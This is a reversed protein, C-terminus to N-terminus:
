KNVSAADDSRVAHYESASQIQIYMRVYSVPVLLVYVRRTLAYIDRLLTYFLLGTQSSCVEAAVGGRSNGTADVAFRTPCLM